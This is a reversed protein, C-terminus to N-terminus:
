KKDVKERMIEGNMDDQLEEAIVEALRSFVAAQLDVGVNYKIFLLIASRLRHAWRCDGACTHGLGVLKLTMTLANIQITPRARVENDYIYRYKIILAKGNRIGKLDM